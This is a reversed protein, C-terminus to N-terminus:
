YNETAFTSNPSFLSSTITLFLPHIRTIPTFQRVHKNTNEILDKAWHPIMTPSISKPTFCKPLVPKAMLMKKFTGEILAYASYHLAIM